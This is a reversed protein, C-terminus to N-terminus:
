DFSLSKIDLQARKFDEMRGIDLWYEHILFPAVKDGRRLVLNILDPMDFFMDRPIEYLLGPDLIYIGSSVFYSSKPKEELSKIYGDQVNAVGYPVQFDYGRVGVSLVSDLQFHYDLMNDFSVNTLLDANMVFFPAKIKYKDLLSLAGATGLRQNEELYTINVGLSKGDQFYDKIMQSKYNVSIYIDEFGYRKFNLIITELIPKGGVKLLPKPLEDTMPKLRSGLGGAMLVVINKKHSKAVLPGNDVDYLDVVIDNSDLVPIKNLLLRKAHAVVHEVEDGSRICLPMKKMICSVADSLRRGGILGRRVDGDTVTGLLKGEASVVLVIRQENSNLIELASSISVSIGVTVDTIM